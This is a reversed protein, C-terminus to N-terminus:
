PFCLTLSCMLTVSCEDGDNWREREREREREGESKRIVSSRRGPSYRALTSKSITALVITCKASLDAAPYNPMTGGALKRAM